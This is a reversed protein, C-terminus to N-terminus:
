EGVIRRGMDFLPGGGFIILADGPQIIEGAQTELADFTTFARADCGANNKLILAALSESTLGDIPPEGAGDLPALLVIDAASLNRALAEWHCQMLSYRYPHYVAIIRKACNGVWEIDNEVCTPHSAYDTALIYQHIYQLQCRDYLGQYEQLSQVITHAPIDLGRAVAICSALNMANARGGLRPVFRYIDGSAERIIIPCSGNDDPSDIQYAICPTDLVGEPAIWEIQPCDKLRDYLLPAGLGSYHIYVRTHHEICQRVHQEFCSVIGELNHYINLHDEEVNNILLIKPLHLLNTKDSEDVECVLYDANEKYHSPQDEGIPVAGLIDSVTLGADSLVRVIAAATTGKGHTGCVAISARHENAFRALAQGRSCGIRMSEAQRREPNSAPVAASYVVLDADKINDAKQDLHISSGREEWFRRCNEGAGPDSGTVIHGAQSLYNALSHMGAGAIGIFYIKM